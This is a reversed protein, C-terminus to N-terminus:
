LAAVYINKYIDLLHLAPRGVAIQSSDFNFVNLPVNLWMKAREKFVNFNLNKKILKCLKEAM